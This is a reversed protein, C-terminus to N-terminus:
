RIISVQNIASRLVVTSQTIIAHAELELKTIKVFAFQNLQFELMSQVYRFAENFSIIPM